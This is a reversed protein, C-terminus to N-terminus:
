NKFTLYVKFMFTQFYPFYMFDCYLIELNLSIKMIIM